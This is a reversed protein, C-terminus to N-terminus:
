FYLELACGLGVSLKLAGGLRESICSLLVQLFKSYFQNLDTEWCVSRHSLMYMYVCDFFEHGNKDCYRVGM